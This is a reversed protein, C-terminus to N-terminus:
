VQHGRPLIEPAHKQDRAPYMLIGNRSNPLVPQNTGDSTTVQQQRFKHKYQQDHLEWHQCCIRETREEFSERKRLREGRGERSSYKQKEEEIQRRERKSRQGPIQRFRHYGPQHNKKAPAREHHDLACRVGVTERRTPRGPM